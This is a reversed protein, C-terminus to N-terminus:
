ELTTLCKRDAKVAVIEITGLLIIDYNRYCVTLIQFDIDVQCRNAIAEEFEAVLDIEAESILPPM